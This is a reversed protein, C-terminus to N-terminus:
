LDYNVQSVGLICCVVHAEVSTSLHYHHLFIFVKELIMAKDRIYCVNRSTPCVVLIGM